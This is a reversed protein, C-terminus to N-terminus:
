KLLAVSFSSAGALRSTAIVGLEEGNLDIPLVIESERDNSEKEIPPLYVGSIPLQGRAPKWLRSRVVICLAGARGATQLESDRSFIARRMISQVGRPLGCYPYFVAALVAFFCQTLEEGPLQKVTVAHAFFNTAFFIFM